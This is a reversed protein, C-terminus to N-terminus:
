GTHAHRKTVVRGVPRRHRRGPGAKGVIDEAVGRWQSASAAAADSGRVLVHECRLFLPSLSLFASSM